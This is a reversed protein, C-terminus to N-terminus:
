RKKKKTVLVVAVVAVILVLVIIGVPSAIAGPVNVLFGTIGGAAGMKAVFEPLPSPRYVHTKLDSSRGYLITIDFVKNDELDVQDLEVPLYATKTKGPAIDGEVFLDKAIGNVILRQIKISYFITSETPNELGVGIRKLNKYYAIDTINLLANDDQQTEIELKISFPPGYKNQMTLFSDLETPELGFSTYFEVSTNDDIRELPIDVNYSIPMTEGAGLFTVDKDSASALENGNKDKVSLTTLEYVGGSGINKFYTRLVKLQPDYTARTVTLGLTPQPLPFMSLAYVKEGEATNGYGFKVFVSIKKESRTRIQEGVVSLRNGVLVVSKVNNEVLFNYTDDLIKNPGSLLVPNKTSFFESELSSGDSLIINTLSDFKKAIAQSDKYINNNNITETVYPSIIAEVDRRFNGVAIVNQAGRLKAAVQNANDTNVIFVWGGKNVALGALPVSLKFNEESVVYYPVNSPALLINLNDAKERTVADYGASNFQAEVNAIMPTSSSEYIEISQDPPLLKAVSAISETNLFFGRENRLASYLMVSYVDKWDKSNALYIASASSAFFGLTFLVLLLVATFKWIRM